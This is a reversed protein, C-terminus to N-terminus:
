KYKSMFFIAAFFYIICFAILIIILIGVIKFYTTLNSIGENLKEQNSSTLGTTTNSAFRLLFVNILISLGVVILSVLVTAAATIMSGRGAAFSKLLSLGASVFAIIACIKAWTAAQKLYNGAASDYTLDFLNDAQNTNNEM